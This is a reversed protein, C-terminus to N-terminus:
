NASKCYEGTPPGHAADANIDTELIRRRSTRTVLFEFLRSAQEDWTPWHFGEIGRPAATELRLSMATFLTEPDELSFYLGNKGAIERFIPIDSLIIPCGLSLSEIVPLGFGEHSSAMITALANGYALRLEADNVDHYYDVPYGERIVKNIKDTIQEHMWGPHGVIKLRIGPHSKAIRIFQDIVLSHNKKPEISGVMIFYRDNASFRKVRATNQKDKSFDFGHHQVFMERIQLSHSEMLEQLDARTAHSISVVADALMCSGLVNYHFYNVWKEDYKDPIIVPLLDHLMPVIKIGKQQLMFYNMPNVDHWYAPMFMVDGESPQHYIHNNSLVVREYDPIVQPMELENCLNHLLIDENNRRSFFNLSAIKTFMDRKLRAMRRRFSVNRNRTRPKSRSVVNVRNQLQLNIEKKLLANLKGIEYYPQLDAIKELYKCYAIIHQNSLNHLCDKLKGFDETYVPHVVWEGGRALSIELFRTFYEFTVRPIGTVKNNKSILAFDIYLRKM